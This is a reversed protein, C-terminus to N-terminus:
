SPDIEPLASLIGPRIRAVEPRADLQRIVADRDTALEPPWRFTYSTYSPALTRRVAAQLGRAISDVLFSVREESLQGVFYVTLQNRITM